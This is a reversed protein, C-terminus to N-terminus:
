LGAVVLKGEPDVKYMKYPVDRRDGRDTFLLAGTVGQVGEMRGRMAEAIAESDLKGAKDIAGAIAYLADAAYVPWPSSPL